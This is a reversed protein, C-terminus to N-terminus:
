ELLIWEHALVMGALAALQFLAGEPLFLSVTLLAAGYFFLRWVGYTKERDASYLMLTTMPFLQFSGDQGLLPWWAPMAVGGAPGGGPILLAFPVPWCGSQRVAGALRGDKWVIERSSVAGTGVLAAEMMHLVGVMMLIGRVDAFGALGPMLGIIGICAGSYAFCCFRPRIRSLVLALPFLLALYLGLRVSLGALCMFLMGIGGCVLGAIVSRVTRELAREPDQRKYRSYSIWIALWYVPNALGAALSRILLGAVATLWEPM